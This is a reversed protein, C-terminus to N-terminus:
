KGGEVIDMVAQYVEEDNIIIGGAHTLTSIEARRGVGLKVDDILQCPISMEACLVGKLKGYNVKEFSAYPFPFLTIPRIMGAKVGNARLNNIAEKAVRATTGYAVILVEADELLYEEVMEECESWKEYVANKRKNFREQTEEPLLLTTRDVKGRVVTSLEGIGKSVQYAMAEYMLSALQDGAAIRKEIELASNTGLIRATGSNGRILKVLDGPKVNNQTCYLALPNLPVRGSREPTFPGETDNIVDVMRGKEFVSLTIGGGIHAMIVNIDEPARGLAKAEKHLTARMNLVHVRSQRIIGQFGTPYGLPQMESVTIGDYTYAPINLDKALELGLASALNGAHQGLPRNLLRDILLDNVEYAGAQMPVGVGGRCAVASLETKDIPMHELFARVGERRMPLQDKMKEYPAIQEPTYSLGEKYILKENEYLALKMSTSGPNIALIYYPKM